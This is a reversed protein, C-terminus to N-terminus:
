KWRNSDTPSSFRWKRAMWNAWLLKRGTSNQKADTLQRGDFFNRSRQRLQDYFSFAQDARARSYSEGARRHPSIASAVSKFDTRALRSTHTRIGDDAVEVVRRWSVLM